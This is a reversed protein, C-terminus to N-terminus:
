KRSIKMLSPKEKHSFKKLKMSLTVKSDSFKAIWPVWNRKKERSFKM